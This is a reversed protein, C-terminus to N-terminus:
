GGKPAPEQYRAAERARTLQPCTRHYHGPQRCIDCAGGAGQRRGGRAGRRGSGTGAGRAGRDKEMVAAVIGNPGERKGAEKLLMAEFQKLNTNPNAMCARDVAEQLMM